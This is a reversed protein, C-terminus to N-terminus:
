SGIEQEFRTVVLRDNGDGPTEVWISGPPSRSPGHRPQRAVSQSFSASTM